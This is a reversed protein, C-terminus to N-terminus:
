NIASTEDNTTQQISDNEEEYAELEIKLGESWIISYNFVYAFLACLGSFMLSGFGFVIIYFFLQIMGRMFANIFLEPGLAIIISQYIIYFFLLVLSIFSVAVSYFIGFKFLSLPDIKKIKYNYM